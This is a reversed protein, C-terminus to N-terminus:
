RQVEIGSYTIGMINETTHYQSSNSDDELQPSLEPSHVVSGSNAIGGINFTPNHLDGRIIFQIDQTQSREDVAEAGLRHLIALMNQRESYQRTGGADFTPSQIQLNTDENTETYDTQLHESVEPCVALCQHNSSSIGHHMNHLRSVTDNIVEITESDNMALREASLLRRKLEESTKRTQKYLRRSALMFRRTDLKISFWSLFSSSQRREEIGKAMEKMEDYTVKGATVFQEFDLGHNRSQQQIERLTALSISLWHEGLELSNRSSRPEPTYRLFQATPQFDAATGIDLVRRVTTFYSDPFHLCISIM